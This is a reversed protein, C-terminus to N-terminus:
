RIITLKEIQSTKISQGEFETEATIQYLYVGNALQDGAEDTGDWEIDFNFGQQAIQNQITHILRGSVAYIKISIEAPQNIEFTFRTQDSMPNPYNMVNKFLLRDRAVIFFSIEEVSSNNYNDWAKIKLYHEGETLQTLPYLIKGRLYSNKDYQFFPTLNYKQNIQEDCIMTIQHGIEGTINVGSLSDFIAVELTPNLPVLDGPYFNCDKFGIDIEPGRTDRITPDTGGFYIGELSGAADLRNVENYFYASIRGNQGGYSIDKPVIFQMQFQNDEVRGAGRFIVNGTQEYSVSIDDGNQYTRRQSSDFVKLYVQGTLTNSYSKELTLQGTVQVRSLAHLSEPVVSKIRVQNQPVALRLAPDGLLHYKETNMGPYKNKAMRVADGLRHSTWPSSFLYRVLWRNLEGNPGSVALRASAFSAIAGADPKLLMEEAILQDNPHDWRGFACSAVIMFPLKLGNDIQPIEQSISFINEHAFQREHSHGIMNLVLTGQNIQQVLDENVGPKTIGTTSATIVAPYDILYIKQINLYEPLVSAINEAQRTHELDGSNAKGGGVYEDDAVLTITTRWAGMEPTSEYQCIKQVLRRAEELNSVPLRGIAMEQDTDEGVVRVYWEDLCRNDESSQEDTYFPPIWNPQSREIGKYDYHGDGLLLVYRLRAGGQEYVFKLFDRIAVPDPIGWGFENFADTINVVKTNLSDINERLSKITMAPETFESPSLILYDCDYVQQRLDAFTVNEIDLVQRYQSAAVALYRAPQSAKVSDIFSLLTGKTEYNIKQVSYYDSIKFIEVSENLNNTLRFEIIGSDPASNFFLVPESLILERLFELEIWNVYCGSGTQGPLYSVNINQRDNNSKILTQSTASKLYFRPEEGGPGYISVTDILVSNHQILCNYFGANRAALQVRVALPTGILAHSMQFSYNLPESSDRIEQGLWLRGSSIINQIEQESFHLDRFSNKVPFYGGTGNSITEIRKGSVNGGWTLWYINSETYPNLYHRFSKTESDFEYGSSGAGYFLIYDNADFRGDDNDVVLIANEILSDPRPSFISEPLPRGGNNYIRLTTPNIEALDIHEAALQSGTIQYMGEKKISIKFWIGTLLSKSLPQPSMKEPARRWKRAQEYNLIAATYLWEDSEPIQLQRQPVSYQSVFKIQVVLKQYIRIKNERFHCQVPFLNLRVTPQNRLYGTSEIQILQDPYKTVSDYFATATPYELHPMGNELRFQPVPAPRINRIEKVEAELLEFQVTAKEPRGILISAFPIEPRAASHTYHASEFQLKLYRQQDISLTDYIWHQPSFEFVFGSASTSIIKTQGVANNQPLLLTLGWVFLVLPTISSKLFRSLKTPNM